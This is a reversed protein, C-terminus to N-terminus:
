AELHLQQQTARPTRPVLRFWSRRQGNVVAIRNEIQLGSRRLELIRANYQAVGTRLLDPLPVWSGAREALVTYIKLQQTTV